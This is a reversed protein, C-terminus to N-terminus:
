NEKMRLNIKYLQNIKCKLRHILEKNYNHNSYYAIQTTM